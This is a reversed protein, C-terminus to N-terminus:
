PAPEERTTVAAPHPLACCTWWGGEGGCVDCPENDEPDLCCCTDEGCDHGDLGEGGCQYCREWETHSSCVACPPGGEYHVEWEALYDPEM